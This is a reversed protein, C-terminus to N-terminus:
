GEAEKLFHTISVLEQTGSLHKSGVCCLKSRSEYPIGCAELLNVSHM